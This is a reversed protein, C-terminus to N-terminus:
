GASRLTQLPPEGYASKYAAAFRGLHGFGWRRATAAVSAHAPHAAQLDRHVRRLRVLQVYSMPSMGVHRRFGEQLARVSVHCQSALWSTTLASQPAAEILDMAERVAAPRIPEAALGLSKRHAHDATLLLGHIVSEVLPDLVASQRMPNDPYALESSMWLLQRVWSQVAGRSVPLETAFAVPSDLPRGLMRELASDVALRDIKVGLHRTNAPWRTVALRAGPGYITALEPTSTFRQGRYLSELEGSLPIHIYYSDREEGFRLAVDAHYTLDALMIPGAHTRHQAYGFGVSSGLLRLQHPYFASECLHIAQDPSRTHFWGPAAPGEISTAGM